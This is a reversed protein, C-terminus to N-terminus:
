RFLKKAVEHRSRMDETVVENRKVLYGDSLEVIGVRGRKKVPVKKVYRTLKEQGFNEDVCPLKTVIKNGM